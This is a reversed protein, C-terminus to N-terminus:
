NPKTQQQPLQQLMTELVAVFNNLEAESVRVQMEGHILRNRKDALVRLQDAETPTIYGDSALIQLLRAPTQPRGFKDSVMARAVAEFTAWSMLLSPERHGEIILQKIETIGTRLAEIKQVVLKPTDSTPTLWEVRLEWKEQGRLLASINEIKKDADPSRRMVEIVLNKDSRMALADPQFAGFFPPILPKRPQIYVEYGEAELEPLLRQLIDSEITELM